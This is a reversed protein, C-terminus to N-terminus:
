DIEILEYVEYCRREIVTGYGNEYSDKIWSDIYLKKKSETVITKAHSFSLTETIVNKFKM